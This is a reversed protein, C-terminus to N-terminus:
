KKSTSLARRLEPEIADAMRYFGIDNPHCGDVTCADRDRVGFLSEGDVFYVNRDGEALAHLFTDRIISRRKGNIVRSSDFDPRSVIVIPLEPHAKRVTRFLTEHTKALYDADPANHDYDLVFTSMDLGAIFRNMPEEAKAAGSFGLNIVNADLRRSLHHIYTNGPRSACGGQTISSGYFVIPKQITFPTPPLIESGPELGFSVEDVITYLPFNITIERFGNEDTRYEPNTEFPVPGGSCDMLPVNYDLEGYVIRSVGAFRKFIGSGLYLDFGASGFLGMNAMWPLRRLHYKVAVIRSTTKFRLQVGAPMQAEDQVGETQEPMAAQSLRCLKHEQEFYPLGDVEFGKTTLPLFILTKGDATQEAFNSDIQDIRM